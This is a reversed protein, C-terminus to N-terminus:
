VQNRIDNLIIGVFEPKIVKLIDGPKPIQTPNIIKNTLAILWWLYQTGYIRYSITTWPYQKSIRYYEFVDESVDSPISIKTLINYFYYINNPSSDTNSIPKIAEFVHFINEYREQSLKPLDKIDNQKNIKM